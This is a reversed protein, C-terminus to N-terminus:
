VASASARARGYEALSYFAAKPEWPMGPYATGTRGPPLVKVIGFSGLDFDREPDESTPLHRSAFTYVFATDVGGADYVNLLDRLYTAQEPEDREVTETLRAAQATHEDYGIIDSRSGRDAAGNFPACGFETIAFPKGQSTMTALNAPLAAANSADRYGADTAIFDFPTWDVAEMPLSAYGILGGFRERAGAAAQALLANTERQLGPLVERVRAPDTLVAARETLTDGPMLGITMMSIESGTLFRVNAGERRIREAREAADLLFALLQDNTLGNTFPCYWVELGAAVAHRAAIELRDAVGGTIRVADAHLDDRIIRMDKAVIDPDFPEHTTTGMNTFGTDYTVGWARM